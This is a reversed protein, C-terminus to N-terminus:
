QFSSLYSVWCNRCVVVVTRLYVYNLIFNQQPLQGSFWVIWVKRYFFAEAGTEAEHQSLQQLINTTRWIQGFNRVITAVASAFVKKVVTVTDCKQRVNKFLENFFTKKFLINLLRFTTVISLGPFLVPQRELSAHFCRNPRETAVFFNTFLSKNFFM